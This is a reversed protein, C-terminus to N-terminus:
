VIKEKVIMPDSPIVQGPDIGPFQTTESSGRKALEFGLDYLDAVLKKFKIRGREIIESSTRNTWDTCTITRIRADQATIFVAQVYGGRVEFRKLFHLVEEGDRTIILLKNFYDKYKENLEAVTDKMEQLRKEESEKQKQIQEQERQLLEEPSPKTKKFPNKFM